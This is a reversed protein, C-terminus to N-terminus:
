IPNKPVFTTLIEKTDTDILYVTVGLNFLEDKLDCARYKSTRSWSNISVFNKSNYIDGDIEKAELVNRFEVKVLEDQMDILNSTGLAKRITTDVFCHIRM